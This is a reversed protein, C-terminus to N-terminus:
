AGRNDITTLSGAGHNRKAGVREVYISWTGDENHRATARTIMAEYRYCNAVFGNGSYRRITKASPNEDIAALLKEADAAYLIRKRALGELADAEAMIGATVPEHDTNPTYIIEQTDM